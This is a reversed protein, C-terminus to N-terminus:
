TFVIFVYKLGHKLFNVDFLGKGIYLKNKKGAFYHAM